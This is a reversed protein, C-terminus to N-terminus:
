PSLTKREMLAKYDSKSREIVQKYDEQESARQAKDLAQPLGTAPPQPQQLIKFLTPFLKYVIAVTLAIILILILLTILEKEM